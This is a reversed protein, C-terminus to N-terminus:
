TWEPAPRGTRQWIVLDTDPPEAGLKRLRTAIQGRHYHSHHSLHLLLEWLPQTFPEGALNKYALPAALDAEKRLSLYAKLAAHCARAYHRLDGLSAYDAAKPPTFEMGQWRALWIQQVAHVHFFRERLEADEKAPASAGAVRWACADAWEQHRYLDEILELM